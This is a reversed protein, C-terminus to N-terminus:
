PLRMTAASSGADTVTLAGGLLWQMITGDNTDVDSLTLAGLGDLDIAGTGTTSVDVSSSAAFSLTRILDQDWYGLRM